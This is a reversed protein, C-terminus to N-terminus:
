LSIITYLLKLAVVELTCIYLIVGYIGWGFIRRLSVGIYVYKFGLFFLGSVLLVRAGTDQLDLLYVGYSALVFLLDSYLHVLLSYGWGRADFLFFWVRSLFLRYFDYLFVSVLLYKYDFSLKFYSGSVDWYHERLGAIYEGLFYWLYAFGVWRVMWIGLSEVNNLEWPLKGYLNLVKILVLSLLFFLLFGLLIESKKELVFDKYTYSTYCQEKFYSEAGVNSICVQRFNGLSGFSAEYFDGEEACERPFDGTYLTDGRHFQGRRLRYYGFYEDYPFFVEAVEGSDARLRCPQELELEELSVCSKLWYVGRLVGSYINSYFYRLNRELRRFKIRIENGRRLLYRRHVPVFVRGFGKRQVYFLRGNVYIECSGSVVPIYLYFYEADSLDGIDFYRRIELFEADANFPVFVRFGGSSSLVEWEGQLDRFVELRPERSFGGFSDVPLYIINDRAWVSAVLFILIGFAKRM